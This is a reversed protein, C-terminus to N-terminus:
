WGSLPAPFLAVQGIGSLSGPRSWAPDDTAAALPCQGAVRCRAFSGPSPQPLGFIWVPSCAPRFRCHDAHRLFLALEICDLAFAHLRGWEMARPKSHCIANFHEYPFHDLLAPDQGGNYLIIRSDPDLYHLNRVLDIVCEPNEHVLCAFVNRVPAKTSIEGSRSSHPSIAISRAIAKHHINERNSQEKLLMAYASRDDGIWGRLEGASYPHWNGYRQRLASNGRHLITISFNARPLIAMHKPRHSWLFHLEEGEDLDPFPNTQWFARTYCLSHGSLWPPRGPQQYIYQWGQESVPDYYFQEGSGCVDASQQLLQSVQYSIRWDAMWDNEDWHLIVQGDALNCAINRKTGLTARYHLRVYRIRPDVMTLDTLPDNGDDVIILEREPYDQRCFYAIAQEVLQRHNGIPLICTVLPSSNNM